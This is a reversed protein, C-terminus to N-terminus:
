HRDKIMDMMLSKAQDHYGMRSLESAAKARGLLELRWMLGKWCNKLVRGTDLTPRRFAVDNRSAQMSQEMITEGGHWCLILNLANRASESVTCCWVNITEPTKRPRRPKHGTVSITRGRDSFNEQTRTFGM